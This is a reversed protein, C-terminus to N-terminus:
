TLYDKPENGFILSYTGDRYQKEIVLMGGNPGYRVGGILSGV